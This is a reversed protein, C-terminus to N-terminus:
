LDLRHDGQGEVGAVGIGQTLKDGVGFLQQLANLILRQALVGPQLQGPQSVLGTCLAHQYILGDHGSAGAAGIVVKARHAADHLPVGRAIVAECEADVGAALRGVQRDAAVAHARVQHFAAHQHALGEAPRAEARAIRRGIASEGDAVRGAVENVAFAGLGAVTLKRKHRQHVRAAYRGGGAAAADEGRSILDIKVFADRGVM